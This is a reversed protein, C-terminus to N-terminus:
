PCVDFERCNLNDPTPDIGCLNPGPAPPPFGLGTGVTYQLVLIADAINLQGDDNFDSSDKCNLSTNSFLHSLTHIADGVDLTGDVNTDGRRFSVTPPVCSDLVGDNNLDLQPLEAIECRDLWGNQNCDDFGLLVDCRDPIGNSNCDRVFGFAVDCSDIRGNQNCDEGAVLDTDCGNLIGDNDDDFGCYLDLICDSDRCDTLGDLDDDRGNDCIEIGLSPPVVQASAYGSYMLVFFTVVVAFYLYYRSKIHTM